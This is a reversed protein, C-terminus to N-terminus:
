IYEFFSNDYDCLVSSNDKDMGKMQTGYKRKTLKELKHEKKKRGCMKGNVKGFQKGKTELNIITINM